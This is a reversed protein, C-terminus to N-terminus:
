VAAYTLFSNQKAATFDAVPDDAFAAVGMRDAALMCPNGPFRRMTGPRNLIDGFGTCCQVVTRNRLIMENQEFFSINDLEATRIGEADM